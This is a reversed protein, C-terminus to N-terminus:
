RGEERLRCSVGHMVDVAVDMYPTLVLSPTERWSKASPHASAALLM